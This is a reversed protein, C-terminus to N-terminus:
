REKDILFPTPPAVFNSIKESIPDNKHKTRQYRVLSAKNAKNNTIIISKRPPKGVKIFAYLSGYVSVM